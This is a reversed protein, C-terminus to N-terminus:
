EQENMQWIQAGIWQIDGGPYLRIQAQESGHYIITNDNTKLWNYANSRTLITQPLITSADSSSALLVDVPYQSVIEFNGSVTAFTTGKTGFAVIGGSGMNYAIIDIDEFTYFYEEWLNQEDLKATTKATFDTTSSEGYTLDIMFDIDVIRKNELYENIEDTNSNGGRLLVFAKENQTVVVAPYNSRGVLAIDIINKTISVNILSVLIIITITSLTIYKYSIKIRTCAYVFISLILLVIVAFNTEFYVQSFPLNAFIEVWLNLLKIFVGGILAFPLILLETASFLGFVGAGFGCVLIIPVLLFVAINAFIAVTSINFGQLVLVPFTSIIAGLTVCLFACIAKLLGAIASKEYHINLKESIAVGSFVGLTAAFSLQYSVSCIVWGNGLLLLVGALSLSTLTDNKRYFFTGVSAVILMIGARVISPTFGTVGMLFLACVVCLVAYIRRKTATNRKYEIFGCILALHMGSVVLVHSVGAKSYLDRMDQRLHTTDGVTMAALIGAEKAPLFRRINASMEKQLHICFAYFGGIEGVSEYGGQYSAIAYVGDAYNSKLYSDQSLPELIFNGKIIQGKEVPPMVYSIVGFNYPEENITQVQLKVMSMGEIYSSQVEQVTASITSIENKLLANVDATNSYHSTNFLIIGVVLGCLSLLTVYQKAIVFRLIAYLAFIAALVWLLYQPLYAKALHAALISACFVFLPRKM